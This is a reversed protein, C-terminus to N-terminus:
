PPAESQTSKLHYFNAGYSVFRCFKLRIKTKVSCLSLAESNQMKIFCLSMAEGSRIDRALTVSSQTLSRDRALTVSSRTLSRDRALTVSSRTLSRDRALSDSVERTTLSWDLPSKSREDLSWVLCYKAERGWFKWHLVVLVSCPLPRKVMGTRTSPPENPSALCCRGQVLWRKFLQRQLLYYPKGVSM